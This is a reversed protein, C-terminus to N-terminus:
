FDAQKQLHLASYDTDEDYLYGNEYRKPEDYVAPIGKM